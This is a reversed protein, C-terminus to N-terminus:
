LRTGEKAGLLASWKLRFRAVGQDWGPLRAPDARGRTNHMVLQRGGTLCLNPFGLELMQRCMDHDYLHFGGYSEDWATEQATALLLGDLYACPGGAGFDLVGFRSDRASGCCVGDWWPVTRTRSGIVGVMGIGPGCHKVLEARLGAPDLVRVDQHVFCRIPNVARAAGENYARAISPPDEVVVVEDLGRLGLSSLLNNELVAPDHSAVIYSIM